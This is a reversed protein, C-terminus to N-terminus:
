QLIRGFMQLILALKVTEEIFPSPVGGSDHKFSISSQYQFYVLCYLPFFAYVM